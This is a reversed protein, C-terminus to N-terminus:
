RAPQSAASAGCLKYLVRAGVAGDWESGDPAPTVEVLDFGVVRRGSRVVAELLLCAQAFSLGGPVPTGTHPCLSPDLADIDFSVYVDRPLAEVVERCLDSYRAGDLLRSRWELDTVVRVRAGERRAAELEGESCDRIGVSVLRDVQPIRGLVNHMISAHSWLFGEFAPRLDLHADLHLIGLGPFHEACARIQGFPTSHDGGVLGPIHGQHLAARAAAETFENVREGAGDIERVEPADEPGAGGREIIARALERARRGLAAIHSPEPALHIGAEYVRGFQLDFLDVQMSARLIAAPGGATGGGYSTTAEFPVAVLHLRSDSPASRLGFIGSGPAAAAEPDFGSM